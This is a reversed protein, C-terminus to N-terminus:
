RKNSKVQWVFVGVAIVAALLAAARLLAFLSPSTKIALWFPMSNHEAVANVYSYAWAGVIVAAGTVSLVIGVLLGRRTM